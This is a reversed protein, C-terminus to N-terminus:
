YKFLRDKYSISSGHEVKEFNYVNSYLSVTFSVFLHYLRSGLRFVEGTLEILFKLEMFQAHMSKIFERPFM